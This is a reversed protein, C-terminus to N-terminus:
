RTQKHIRTSDRVVLEPEFVVQRPQSDAARRQELLLQVATRGLRERPQSVTTLPVTAAQAFEIDDYGVIAVDEPVRLGLRVVQQLLGLALLDNACFVATPRRAAPIGALREGARRGEAVDTRDTELVTLPEADSRAM